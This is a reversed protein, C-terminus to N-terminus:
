NEGFAALIAATNVQGGSTLMAVPVSIEGSKLATNLMQEIEPEQRNEALARRVMAALPGTDPTTPEGRLAALTGSTIAAVFDAEWDGTVAQTPAPAPARMPVRAQAPAVPQAITPPEPAEVRAALPRTNDLVIPAPDPGTQPLMLVGIVGTLGLTLLSLRFLPRSKRPAPRLPQRRLAADADTDASPTSPSPAPGIGLPVIKINSPAVIRDIRIANRGGSRVNGTAQRAGKSKLM